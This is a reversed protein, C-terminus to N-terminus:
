FLCTFGVGFINRDYAYDRKEITYNAKLMLDDTVNVSIGGFTSKTRTFDGDSSELANSYGMNLRVRPSVDIDAKVLYGGVYQNQQDYVNISRASLMLRGSFFYQDIGPTITQVGGDAYQDHKLEFLFVTTGLHEDEKHIVASGGIVAMYKSLLNASPTVAMRGYAAFRGNFSHALTLGYRQDSIDFRRVAQIDGIVTTSPTIKYSLGAFGETWNDYGAPLESNEFAIDLRWKKPFAKQINQSLLLADTYDNNLALAQNVWQQAEELKQQRFAVLSLGYYADAYEPALTITTNFAEEAKQLEDQILYTLGLQVLVDSNNPALQRALELKKRALDMDNAQRAQKGEQFLQGVDPKQAFAAAMYFAYLSLLIAKKEFIKTM